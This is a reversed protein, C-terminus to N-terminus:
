GRGTRLLEEGAAFDAHGSRGRLVVLGAAALTAALVAMSGFGIRLGYAQSLLGVAIPGLVFGFYGFTTMTAIAAGRGRADTLRGARAFLAPAVLAVGAGGMALGPLAVLASSASAAVLLGISAMVAGGTLLAHDSFRAGLWHGASRGAFMAGAFIGPGAGGVAPGTGIERELLLASWNQIGDEILFSLACLVALAVLVGVALRAAADVPQKDASRGAEIRRAVTASGLAVVVFLVAAVTLGAAPGLGNQRVLGTSVSAVTVALSFLAHAGYMLRRDHAAEVDSVASNMSVDLAGSSAGFFVAAVALAIPTTVVIPGLASFAFALGTV